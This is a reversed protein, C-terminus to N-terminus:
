GGLVTGKIYPDEACQKCALGDRVKQFETDLDFSEFTKSVPLRLAGCRSVWSGQDQEM